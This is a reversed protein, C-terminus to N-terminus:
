QGGREGSDILKLPYGTTDHLWARRGHKKALQRAFTIAEELTNCEAQTEVGLFVKWTKRVERGSTDVIQFYHVIVDHNEDPEERLSKRSPM